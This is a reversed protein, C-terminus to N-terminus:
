SARQKDIDALVGAVVERIAKLAEDDLTTTTKLVSGEVAALGENLTTKAGAYVYGPVSSGLQVIAGRITMQQTVIMIVLAGIVIAIMGFNESWWPAAPEVPAPAEDVPAPTLVPELTVVAVPTNTELPADQAAAMGVVFLLSFLLVFLAFRKFM